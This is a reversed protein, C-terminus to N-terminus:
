GCCPNLDPNKVGPPLKVRRAFFPVDFIARDLSRPRASPPSSGGRATAAERLADHLYPFAYGHEKALEVFGMRVHKINLYHNCM